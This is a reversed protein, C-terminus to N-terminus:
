SPLQNSKSERGRARPFSDRTGNPSFIKYNGYVAPVHLHFNAVKSFYFRPLKCTVKKAAIWVWTQLVTM